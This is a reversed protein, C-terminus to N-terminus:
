IGVGIYVFLILGRMHTRAVVVSSKSISVPRKSAELEAFGALSETEFFYPLAHYLPCWGCMHVCM